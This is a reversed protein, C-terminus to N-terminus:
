GLIGSGSAKGKPHPSNILTEKAIDLAGRSEVKRIMAILQAATIDNVAKAGIVPFIDAEMRRITYGAHRETKDHKWHNWWLRAVSEFSNAAAIAAKQKEEKRNESPDIGKGLLEKLRAHENRAEKLTVDPYVGISLTRATGNFRYRYRWWKAGFSKVLLALGHGDALSYDKEEPKAAKIISDTLKM